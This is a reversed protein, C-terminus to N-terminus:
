WQGFGPRPSNKISFTASVGYNLHYGFGVINGAQAHIRQLPYNLFIPPDQVDCDYIWWFRGYKGVNPAALSTDIPTRATLVTVDVEDIGGTPNVTSETILWQGSLQQDPQPIESLTQDQYVHGKDCPPCCKLLSDLKEIVAIFFSSQDYVHGHVPDTYQLVPTSLGTETERNSDGEVPECVDTNIVTLGIPLVADGTCTTTLQYSPTEGEPQVTVFSSPVTNDCILVPEPFFLAPNSTIFFTLMTLLDSPDMAVVTQVLEQANLPGVLGTEEAFLQFLTDPLGSAGAATVVDAFDTLCGSCDGPPGQPGPDGQSDCPNPTGALPAPMPYGDPIGPLPLAPGEDTVLIIQYAAIKFAKATLDGCQYGGYNFFLQQARNGNAFIHRYPIQPCYLVGDEGIQSILPKTGVYGNQLQQLDYATIRNPDPACALTPGTPHIAQVDFTWYFYANPDNPDTSVSFDDSLQLLAYYQFISPGNVTFLGQMMLQLQFASTSIVNGKTTTWPKWNAGVVAQFLQYAPCCVPGINELIGGATVTVIDDPNGTFVYGPAEQIELEPITGTDAV